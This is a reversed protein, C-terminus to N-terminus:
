PAAAKRLQARANVAAVKAKFLAMTAPIPRNGTRESQGSSTVCATEISRPVGFSGILMSLSLKATRHLVKPHLPKAGRSTFRDFSVIAGFDYYIGSASHAEDEHLYAPTLVIYRVLPDLKRGIGAYFAKYIVGDDWEPRSMLGRKIPPPLPINVDAVITELGLEQRITHAVADFMRDPVEGVGVLIVSCQQPPESYNLDFRPAETIPNTKSWYPEYSAATELAPTEGPHELAALRRRVDTLNPNLRLAARYYDAASQTNGEDDLEVAYRLVWDIYDNAYLDLFSLVKEAALRNRDPHLPNLYPHKTVLLTILVFLAPFFPAFWYLARGHSGGPFARWLRPVFYLLACAAVFIAASWGHSLRLSFFDFTALAVDLPILILFAILGGFEAFIELKTRAPQAANPPVGRARFLATAIAILRMAIFIGILILLKDASLRGYLVLAVLAALAWKLFTFLLAKNM